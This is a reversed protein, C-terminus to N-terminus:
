IKLRYRSRPKEEFGFAELIKVMEEDQLWVGAEVFEVDYLDETLLKIIRAGVSLADVSERIILNHISGFTHSVCHVRVLVGMGVVREGLWAVAVKSKGMHELLIYGELHKADSHQRRLLFNIDEVVQPTVQKPLLMKVEISGFM